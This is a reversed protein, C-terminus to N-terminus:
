SDTQFGKDFGLNLSTSVAWIVAGPAGSEALLKPQLIM